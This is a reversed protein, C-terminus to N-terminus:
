LNGSGRESRSARMAAVREHMTRAHSSRREGCHPANRAWRHRYGSGKAATLVPESLVERYEQTGGIRGLISFQLPIDAGSERKTRAQLAWGLSATGTQNM